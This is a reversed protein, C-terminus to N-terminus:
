KSELLLIDFPKLSLELKNDKMSYAKGSFFDKYETAKATVNITETKEKNKIKNSKELVFQVNKLSSLQDKIWNQNSTVENGALNIEQNIRLLIEAAITKLELENNKKEQERKLKKNKTSIFLENLADLSLSALNSLLIENKYNENTKFM